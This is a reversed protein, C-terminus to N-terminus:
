YCSFGTNCLVWGGSSLEMQLPDGKMYPKDDDVVMLTKGNQALHPFLEEM